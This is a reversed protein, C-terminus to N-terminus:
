LSCVLVKMVLDSDELLLFCLLLLIDYGEVIVDVWCNFIKM